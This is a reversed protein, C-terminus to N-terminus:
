KQCCPAVSSKKELLRFLSDNELDKEYQYCGILNFGSSYIHFQKGKKQYFKESGDSIISVNHIKKFFIIDKTKFDSIFKKPYFISDTTKIFSFSLNDENEKVELKYLQENQFILFKCYNNMDSSEVIKFNKTTDIYNKFLHKRYANLRINKQFNPMIYNSQCSITFVIALIITYIKIHTDITKM